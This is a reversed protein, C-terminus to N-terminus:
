KISQEDFDNDRGQLRLAALLIQEWENKTMERRVRPRGKDAHFILLPPVSTSLPPLQGDEVRDLAESSIWLPQLSGLQANPLPDEMYSGWKAEGTLETVDRFKGM